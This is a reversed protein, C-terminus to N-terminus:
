NHMFQNPIHIGRKPALWEVHTEWTFINRMPNGLMSVYMCKLTSELEKVNLNKSRAMSIRKTMVFFHEKWSLFPWTWKENMNQLSLDSMRIRILILRLKDRQVWVQRRNWCYFGTKIHCDIKIQNSKATTNVTQSKVYSWSPIFCM